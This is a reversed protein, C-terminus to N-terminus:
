ASIVRGMNQLNSLYSGLLINFSNIRNLFHISYIYKYKPICDTAFCLCYPCVAVHLFIIILRSCLIDTANSTFLFSCKKSSLWVRLDRVRNLGSSSDYGFFRSEVSAWTKVCISICRAIHGIWTAQAYFLSYKVAQTSM